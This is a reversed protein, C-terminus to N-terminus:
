SKKRQVRDKGFKRSQVHTLKQKNLQSTKRKYITHKTTEFEFNSFFFFVLVTLNKEPKIQQTHTAGARLDRQENHSM